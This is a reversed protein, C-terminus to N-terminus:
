KCYNICAKTKLSLQTPTISPLFPSMQLIRPAISWKPTQEHDIPKYKWSSRLSYELLKATNIQYYNHHILSSASRVTIQLVNWHILLSKIRTSSVLCPDSTRRGFGLGQVTSADSKTNPLIRQMCDVVATSGVEILVSYAPESNRVPWCKFYHHWPAQNRNLRIIHSICIFLIVDSWQHSTNM